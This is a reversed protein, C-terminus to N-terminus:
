FGRSSAAVVVVVRKSISSRMSKRMRAIYPRNACYRRREAIESASLPPPEDCADGDWIPSGSKITNMGRKCLPARRAGAHANMTSQSTPREKEM